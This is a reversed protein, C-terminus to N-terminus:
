DYSRLGRPTSEGFFPKVRPYLETWRRFKRWTFAVDVLFFMDDDARM